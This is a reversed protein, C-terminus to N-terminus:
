FQVFYYHLIIGVIDVADTYVFILLADTPLILDVHATQEFDLAFIIILILIIVVPTLAILFDQVPIELCLQSSYIIQLWRWRLMISGDMM